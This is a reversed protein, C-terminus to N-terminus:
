ELEPSWGPEHGFPPEKSLPCSSEYARIIAEQLSNSVEEIDEVSKIDKPTNGVADALNERYKIWNTKRPNRFQRPEKVDSALEFEIWKHDSFTVDPSVRWNVVNREVKVPAIAIDIVERRVRNVFTPKNGVNLISVHTSSLYESLVKGRPNM